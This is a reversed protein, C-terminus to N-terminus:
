GFTPCVSDSLLRDSRCSDNKLEPRCVRVANRDPGASEFRRTSEPRGLRIAKDIRNPQEFDSHPIPDAASLFLEHRDSRIKLSETHGVKPQSPKQPPETHEIKPQSTTKIVRHARSEIPDDEQRSATSSKRLKRTPGQLHAAENNNKESPFM